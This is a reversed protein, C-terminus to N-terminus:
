LPLFVRVGGAPMNIELVVNTRQLADLRVRPPKEGRMVFEPVAM